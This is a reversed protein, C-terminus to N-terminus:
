WWLCRFGHGLEVACWGEACLLHAGQQTGVVEESDALLYGRGADGFGFGAEWGDLLVGDALDDLHLLVEAEFGHGRALEVPGSEPTEHPVLEVTLGIRVIDEVCFECFGLFWGDGLRRLM